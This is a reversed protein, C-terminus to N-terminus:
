RWVNSGAPLDQLWRQDFDAGEGVHQRDVVALTARPSLTALLTLVERSLLTVSLTSVQTPSGNVTVVYTGPALGTFSTIQSGASISSTRRSAPDHAPHISVAIPGAGTAVAAPVRVSVTGTDDTTLGGAFASGALGLWIFCAAAARLIVM